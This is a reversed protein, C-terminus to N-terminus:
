SLVAINSEMLNKPVVEKIDIEVMHAGKKSAYKKASSPPESSKKSEEKTGIKKNIQSPQQTKKIM